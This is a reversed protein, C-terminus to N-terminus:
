GKLRPEPGPQSGFFFLHDIKKRDLRAAGPHPPARREADQFGLLVNLAMM